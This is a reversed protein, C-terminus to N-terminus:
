PGSRSPVPPAAASAPVADTPRGRIEYARPEDTRRGQRYEALRLGHTVVDELVQGLGAESLDIPPISRGMGWVLLREEAHGRRAPRVFVDISLKPDAWTAGHVEGNALILEIGDEWAHAEVPQRQRDRLLVLHLIAGLAVLILGFGVVALAIFRDAPLQWGLVASTGAALGGLGLLLYRGIEAPKERRRRVASVEDAPALLSLGHESLAPSGADTGVVSAM